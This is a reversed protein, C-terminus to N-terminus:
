PGPMQFCSKAGLRDIAFVNQGRASTGICCRASTSVLGNGQVLGWSTQSCYTTELSDSEIRLLILNPKGACARSQAAM